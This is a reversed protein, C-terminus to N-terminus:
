GDEGGRALKERQKAAASLATTACKDCSVAHQENRSNMLWGTAPKGCICAGLHRFYRIDPSM